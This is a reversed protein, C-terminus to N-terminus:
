GPKTTGGLPACREDRHRRLLCFCSHETVVVDPIAAGLAWTAVRVAAVGSRPAQGFDTLGYVVDATFLEELWDLSGDDVLHGHSSVPETIALRDELALSM